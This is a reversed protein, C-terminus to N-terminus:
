NIYMYCYDVKSRNGEEKEEKKEKRRRKSESGREKENEVKQRMERGRMTCVNGGEGRERRVSHDEM